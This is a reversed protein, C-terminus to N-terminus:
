PQKFFDPPLKSSRIRVNRRLVASNNLSPALFLQDDPFFQM